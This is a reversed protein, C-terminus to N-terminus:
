AARADSCVSGRRRIAAEADTTIMTSRRSRSIIIVAAETIVEYYADVVSAVWCLAPIILGLGATALSLLMGIWVALPMGMVMWLFGSGFHGKYFQGLGPIIASLVAAIVNAAHMSQKDPM